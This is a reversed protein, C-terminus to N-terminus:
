SWWHETLFADIRGAFNRICNLFGQRGLPSAFCLVWIVFFHMCQGASGLYFSTNTFDELLPNYGSQTRTVRLDAHQEMFARTKMVQGKTEGAIGFSSTVATM